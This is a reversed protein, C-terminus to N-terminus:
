KEMYSMLVNDSLKNDTQSNTIMIQTLSIKFQSLLFKYLISSCSVVCMSLLGCIGFAGIETLGSLFGFILLGVTKLSSLGALILYLGANYINYLYGSFYGSNDLAWHSYTTEKDVLIYTDITNYINLFLQNLKDTNNYCVYVIIGGSGLMLLTLFMIMLERNQDIKYYNNITNLAVNKRNNLLLNKNKIEEKIKFKELEIKRKQLDYQYKIINNAIKTDTIWEKYPTIKLDM